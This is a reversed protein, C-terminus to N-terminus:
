PQDERTETEVAKLQDKIGEIHQQYETVRRENEQRRQELLEELKELDSTGYEAEAKERLGQLQEELNQVMTQTQIRKESLKEYESRLAELREQVAQDRPSM